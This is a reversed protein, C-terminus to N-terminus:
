EGIENDWVGSMIGFANVLGTLCNPHCLVFDIGIFNIGLIIEGKIVTVCKRNM